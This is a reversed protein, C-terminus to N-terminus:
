RAEKPIEPEGEPKPIYAASAKVGECLVLVPCRKCEWELNYAFPEPPTVRKLAQELQGKRWLLWDSFEKLEEEDFEFRFGKIKASILEYVGLSYSTQGYGVAYGMMQRVWTVPWGYKEVNARTTKLEAMGGAVPMVYDASMLIGHYDIPEPRNTAGDTELLVKELGLGAAFYLAQQDGVEESPLMIKWYTHTICYILDTLHRETSPRPEGIMKSKVRGLLEAELVQDKQIKM